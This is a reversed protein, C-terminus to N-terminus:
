KEALLQAIAAEISQNSVDAGRLRGQRDIIYYDPFGDVSYASNADGRADVCVPYKIGKSHVLDLMKEGGEKNCVGLFVVGDGAYKAAMENMHPISALCPGCWTAWFDLVVIKGKMDELRTADKLEAPLNTWQTIAGLSPAAPCQDFKALVGRRRGDGELLERQIREAKPLNAQNADKAPTEAQPKALNPSKAPAPAKAADTGEALLKEVVERVHPPQLGIARLTGKRDIVAYTPWFGVNWAKASKGGSDIALAYNIGVSKAIEDMKESGRASDHVGIVVLGKSKLDNIMKVNEPLAARCPGCWTAWFDIVIVKGKLTEFIDGKKKLPDIDAPEGLWGMVELKPPTKGTMERHAPGASGLRWFWSEPFEGEARATSAVAPAAPAAQIPLHSLTLSSLVTLAAAIMSVMAPAYGRLRPPRMSKERSSRSKGRASWLARATLM